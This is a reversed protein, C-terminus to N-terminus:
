RELKLTQRATASRGDAATATITLALQASRARRLRKAAAKSVKFRLTASTVGKAATRSVPKRGQALTGALRCARSCTVKVALGKRLLAGLRTKPAKIRLELAGAGAAGGSAGPGGPSAGGGDASAPGAYTDGDYRWIDMGRQYDLTYFVKGGPAWHPASAAGAIPLAFGQETLKGNTAVQFLRTGHEYGSVAVLGGNRFTPHEEFWHTSCGFADVPHGGDTYTGNYPRKEDILSFSSGRVYGGGPALVKSADWTMFAAVTDNCPGGGNGVPGLVSEGGVLLFRDRGRQPWTVSHVFRGDDAGGSAVVVPHQPSGGEQPRLSMLVMPNSSTVVWGPAVETVDHPSASVENVGYGQEVAQEVWSDEVFKANKPDRADIIQGESGYFWTCDLVCEVTHPSKGVVSRILTVKAPDSVDYLNVCGAAESGTECQLGFTGAAVGLIKGNTPVDENEFEVDMTFTGLQKPSEPDSVDFIFLGTTSTAYMTTGIIRAGVGDGMQKFTGVHQVNDSTVSDGGPAVPGQAGAPAAAALAAALALALALTLRRTM